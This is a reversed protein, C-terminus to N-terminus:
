LSPAFPAPWWGRRVLSAGRRSSSRTERRARLCPSACRCARCAGANQLAIVEHRTRELDVGLGRLVRGALGEDERILGLLLHETGIYNNNLLRAEDYARDIVRKARPALLMDQGLRGDGRAVQREIARRINERSVGIRDLASIAVTSNDRILGLLLHETSVHNQGLRSAEQQAFFVVRRAPETFRQWM